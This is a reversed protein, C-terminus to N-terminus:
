MGNCGHWDGRLASVASEPAGHRGTGSQLTRHGNKLWSASLPQATAPLANVAPRTGAAIQKLAEIQQQFISLETGMVGVYKNPLHPLLSDELRSINVVKTFGCRTYPDTAASCLMDYEAEYPETMFGGSAIARRLQDRTLIYCASHANTFQAYTEGAM